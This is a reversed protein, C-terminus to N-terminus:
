FSLAYAASFEAGDVNSCPAQLEKTVADANKQALVVCVITLAVL